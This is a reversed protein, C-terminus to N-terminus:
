QVISEIEGDHLKTTITDGTQLQTKSKVIKGEKLTLSYGKKLIETPSSLLVTNKILALRHQQNNFFLRLQNRLKQTSTDISNIKLRTQKTAIEKLQHSLYIFQRNETHIRNKVKTSLQHGSRLLRNQETQLQQNTLSLIQQQAYLLDEYVETMKGVLFEAVATPTKLSAYAVADLVTEDRLHGIGALIPLPFQTCHVALEYSNFCHLDATAGGGRIIAVADFQENLEFIRDLAKLISAEAAEGQVIAPFLKHYFVFGQSNHTLQHVFDGYGAATESSVVAIRQPLLPFPLSKNMELVGEAELRRLIELRRKALDGITYSPDIDRINLSLGYLEHFEVTCAVLIKMGSALREGTSSEFFPKILRYTSGWCTAKLKAVIRDSNPDKEILEFYAHDNLREQLESIEARIWVAQSFSAKISEKIQTSLELLSISHVSM